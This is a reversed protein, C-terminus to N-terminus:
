KRTALHEHRMADAWLQELNHGCSKTLSKTTTKDTLWLFIKSQLELSQCHLYYPVRDFEPSTKSWPVLNLAANRYHEVYTLLHLGSMELRVPKADILIDPM